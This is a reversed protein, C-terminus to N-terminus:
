VVSKRDLPLSNITYFHVRHAIVGILRKWDAMSVLMEVRHWGCYRIYFAEYDEQACAELRNHRMLSNLLRGMRAIRQPTYYDVDVSDTDPKGARAYNVFTSAKKHAPAKQMIIM